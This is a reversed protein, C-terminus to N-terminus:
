PRGTNKREILDNDSLVHAATKRRLLRARAIVEDVARVKRARVAQEICVIVESNLSRHNEQASQRLRSYLHEPINKVTLTPM